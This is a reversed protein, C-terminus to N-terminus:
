GSVWATPLTQLRRTEDKGRTGVFAGSQGSLPREAKAAPVPRRM